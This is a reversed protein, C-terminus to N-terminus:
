RNPPRQLRRPFLSQRWRKFIDARPQVSQSLPLVLSAPLASVDGSLQAVLWRGILTFAVAAAMPNGPLALIPCDDIDGLGAPRGCRMPLKWFELYGRQGILRTMYDALGVSAGGSTVILDVEAAADILLKLL